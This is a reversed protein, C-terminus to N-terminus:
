SVKCARRISHVFGVKSPDPIRQLGLGQVISRRIIELEDDGLSNRPMALDEEEVGDELVSSSQPATLVADCLLITALLGLLLARQVFGISPLRWRTGTKTRWAHGGPDIKAPFRSTSSAGRRHVTEEALVCPREECSSEIISIEILRAPNELILPSEANISSGISGGIERVTTPSGGNVDDQDSVNSTANNSLTRENCKSFDTTGALPIEFSRGDRGITISDVASRFIEETGAVLKSRALLASGARRNQRERARRRRALLAAADIPICCTRRDDGAIRVNWLGTRDATADLACSREAYNGILGDTRLSTTSPDRDTVRVAEGKSEARWTNRRPRAVAGDIAADRRRRRAVLDSRTGGIPRSSDAIGSRRRAYEEGRSATLFRRDPDAIADNTASSRAEAGGVVVAVTATTKTTTTAKERREEARANDRITGSRPTIPLKGM